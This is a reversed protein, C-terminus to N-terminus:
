ESLEKEKVGDVGGDGDVKVNVDGDGEGDGGGERRMGSRLSHAFAFVRGRGERAQVHTAGKKGWVVGLHFCM